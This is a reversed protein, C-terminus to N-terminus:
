KSKILEIVADIFVIDRSTNFKIIKPHTFDIIHINWEKTSPDYGTLIQCGMEILKDEILKQQNRDKNPNWFWLEFDDSIKGYGIFKGRWSIKDVEIKLWEAITKNKGQTTM